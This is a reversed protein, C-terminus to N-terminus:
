NLETAISMAMEAQVACINEATLERDYVDQWVHDDSAADILQINIRLRNGARQVRGELLYVVGLEEGIQRMNKITDRYGMVSTRSIVKLTTIDALRTLLEDHMGVAFFEADEEAASDNAFPLVAISNGLVAPVSPPTQPWILYLIVAVVAFLGGLLSYTQTNSLAPNNTDEDQARVIGHSTLDFAWALILSFPLGLVLLAIVMQMVWDPAHFNDAVLDAVQVLAWAGVVYAIVVRFVKRRKLEDFFSVPQSRQM